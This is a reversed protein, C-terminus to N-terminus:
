VIRKFKKELEYKTLEIITPRGHPCHFPNELEMLQRILAYGEQVSLRDNAKVAAKCAMTAITLLRSEYPTTSGGLSLADLLETFFGFQAPHEFLYPVEELAFTNPGLRSLGFGFRRFLAENELFLQTEQETLTLAVPQLLRQSVVQGAQFRHYFEEFLVREHAAHQDILFMSDGQEVIWFTAFVQGVIKYNTFYRAIPTDAGQPKEETQIDKARDKALEKAVEEASLTTKPDTETEQGDKKPMMQLGLDEQPLYSLPTEKVIHKNGRDKDSLLESKYLKQLEEMSLEPEKTGEYRTATEKSSAVVDQLVFSPKTTDDPQYIEESLVQQVPKQQALFTKTRASPKSDWNAKPILVEQELVELVAHYVFDYILDDDRFRVTLKAPHVNVDVMDAKLSLNLVFVPFKGVMLRNQYADEVAKSVVENKVFRGNIFLNEYNRSGRALEPKGLLGEVKWDHVQSSIPLMNQSMEKGYVHFVATKLDNNGSTHLLLNGNNQYRFSIEPHALAIKHVMDTIYGSETAPKKLFKRRAPVNYFLNKVTVTTGTNAACAEQLMGSGGAIEIRLGMDEDKTKTVMEVQAVSAISALAEGRFGLSYVDDLDTISSIKSTAHRLFATPAEDKAIGSGNDGVQLFAIGGEEIEIAIATAGADIANEVLEKVVASPREIVEGAAIQNITHHDLVHIKGM